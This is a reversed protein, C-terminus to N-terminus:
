LFQPCKLIVELESADGGAEEEQGQGLYQDLQYPLYPRVM